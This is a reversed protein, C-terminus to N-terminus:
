IITISKGPLPQNKGTLDAENNKYFQVFEDSGPWFVPLIGSLPLSDVSSLGM